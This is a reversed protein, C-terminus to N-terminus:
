SIPEFFLVVLGTIPVILVQFKHEGIVTEGSHLFDLLKTWEVNSVVGTVVEQIETVDPTHSRVCTALGDAEATRLVSLDPVALVDECPVVWWGLEVFRETVAPLPNNGFGVSLLALLCWFLFTRM